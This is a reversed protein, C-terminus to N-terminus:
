LGPFINQRRPPLGRVRDEAELWKAGAHGEVRLSNNFEELTCGAIALARSVDIVILGIIDDGYLCTPNRGLLIIPLEGGYKTAKDYDPWSAPKGAKYDSWARALDIPKVEALVDCASTRILFDPLWGNLPMPEYAWDWGCLDFFAAWRAELRSRFVVGSYTTPIAAIKTYDAKYEM